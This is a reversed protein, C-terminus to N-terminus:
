FTSYENTSADFLRHFDIFNDESSSSARLIADLLKKSSPKSLSFALKNITEFYYPDLISDNLYYSYVKSELFISAVTDGISEFLLRIAYFRGVDDRVESPIMLLEFEKKAPAVRVSDNKLELTSPIAEITVKQKEETGTTPLEKKSLQIPVNGKIGSFSYIPNLSKPKKSVKADHHSPNMKRTSEEKSDYSTNEQKTCWEKWILRLHKAENVIQEDSHRKLDQIVIM